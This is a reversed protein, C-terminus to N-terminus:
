LSILRLVNRDLESQAAIEAISLKLEPHIVDPSIEELPFLVFPYLLIEKRPIDYEPQLILDDYLLIDIDLTRSSFKVGDRQRAHDDELAKLYSSFQEFSQSTQLSAALNYFANGKFGFAETEYVHSFVVDPYKNSLTKMCRRINDRREINSGINLYVKAM